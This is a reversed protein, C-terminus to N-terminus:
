QRASINSSEGRQGEHPRKMEASSAGGGAFGNHTSTVASTHKASATHIANADNQSWAAHAAASPMPEAATREGAREGRPPPVAFPLDATVTTGQKTGGAPERGGTRGGAAASEITCRGGALRVREIMGALGFGRQRASEPEFGCGDDHVVLRIRDDRRLITVTARPSGSHKRANNLSEQVVRYITMQLSPRLDALAAAADVRVEVDMGGVRFQEALDGIAAELGLDDLVNPRVGRIVQRGEDIGRSLYGIVTEIVDAEADGAHGRQWAELLMRSGVAYQLLGDHIDHCISQKEHEQAEILNRLLGEQQELDRAARKLATVDVVTGVYHTFTGDDDHLAEATTLGHRVPGGGLPQLRYEVSFSRRDALARRWVDHVHARDDPHISQSWGAGIVEAAPVGCLRYWFENVYTCAGTSDTRFIGVPTKETLARFEERSRRLEDRSERLAAEARMREGVETRLEALQQTRRAVFWALTTGAVAQVALGSWRGPTIAAFGGAAAASVAATGVLGVAVAVFAPVTGLLKAAVFVALLQVFFPASTELTPHFVARVAVAVTALAAAAAVDRGRRWADAPPRPSEPAPRPPTLPIM